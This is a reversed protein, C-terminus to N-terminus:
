KKATKAKRSKAKAGRVVGLEKVVKGGRVAVRVKSGDSKAEFRVRAPRGEVAPSVNSLHFSRDVTVQGGQPTLRTPKLNKTIGEIGPGKVIVRDQKTLIRVVTGVEGRFDGSRIFVEDGKRIHRPM